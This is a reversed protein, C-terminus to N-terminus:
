AAARVTVRVAKGTAQDVLEIDACSRSSTPDLPDLYVTHLPKGDVVYRGENAM